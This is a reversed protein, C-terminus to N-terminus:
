KREIIGQAMMEEALLKPSVILVNEIQRGYLFGFDKQDGTLLHSCKLAIAGGLIPVDKSKLEVPVNLLLKNSVTISKLLSELGEISGFKKLEINKRAEKVAYSNTVCEGHKHIIRILKAIRSGSVSGSFLINADLFVKM